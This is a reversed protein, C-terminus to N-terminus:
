HPIRVLQQDEFYLKLALIAAIEAETKMDAKLQDVQYYKEVFHTDFTGNQFAQHRCVFKGFPLTTQVGVILYQDIARIM